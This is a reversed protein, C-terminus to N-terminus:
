SSRSVWWLHGAGEGEMLKEYKEIDIMWWRSSITAKSELSDDKLCSWISKDTRPDIDVLNIKWGSGM